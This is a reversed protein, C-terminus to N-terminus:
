AYGKAHHAAYNAVARDRIGADHRNVLLYLAQQQEDPLTKRGHADSRLSAIFGTEWRSLNTAALAVLARSNFERVDRIEASVLPRSSYTIPESCDPCAGDVVKTPAGSWGCGKFDTCYAPM